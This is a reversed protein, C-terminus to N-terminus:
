ASKTTSRSPCAGDVAPVTGAGPFGDGDEDTYCTVDQGSAGSSSTSSSTGSSPEGATGSSTGSSSTGSSAGSSMPAESPDTNARTFAPSPEDGRCAAM